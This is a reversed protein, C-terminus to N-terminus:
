KKIEKVFWDIAARIVTSVLMQALFVFFSSGLIFTYAKTKLEEETAGPNSEYAIRVADAAELIEQQKRLLQNAKRRSNSIRQETVKADSCGQMELYTSTLDDWNM